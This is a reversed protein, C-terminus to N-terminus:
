GGQAANQTQEIIVKQQDPTIYGHKVGQGTIFVSLATLIFYRIPRPIRELWNM